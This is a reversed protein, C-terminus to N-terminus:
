SHLALYFPRVPQKQIDVQRSEVKGDYEGLLDTVDGMVATGVRVNQGCCSALRGSGGCGM